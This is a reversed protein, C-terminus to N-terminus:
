NMLSETFPATELKGNEMERSRRRPMHFFRGTPFLVTGILSERNKNGTARRAAAASMAVKMLSGSVDVASDDALVTSDSGEGV